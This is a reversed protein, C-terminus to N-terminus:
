PPSMWSAPPQMLAQLCHCSFAMVPAAAAPGPQSAQQQYRPQCNCSYTCGQQPQKTLIHPSGISLYPCKQQTNLYCTARKGQQEAKAAVRPNLSTSQQKQVAWYLEPALVSLTQQETAHQTHRCKGAHSLWQYRAEYACALGCLQRCAGSDLPATM